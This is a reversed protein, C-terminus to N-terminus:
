TKVGNVNQNGKAINQIRKRIVSAWFRRRSTGLEKDAKDYDDLSQV